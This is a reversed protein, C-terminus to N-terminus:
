GIKKGLLFKEKMLEIMEKQNPKRAVFISLEGLKNLEEEVKKSIAIFLKDKCFKILDLKQIQNVFSRATLPSYFAIMSKKTNKMFLILKDNNRCIMKSSYCKIAFYKCGLSLFFNRIKFNLKKYTPHIIVDGKKLRKKSLKLLKELNEDANIINQFGKEQLIKKTESGVSFVSNNRFQKEFRFFNAANKSTFMIYDSQSIRLEQYNVKGIELFPIILTEIGIQSLIKSTIISDDIPRTLLIKM